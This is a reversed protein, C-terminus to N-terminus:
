NGSGSRGLIGELRRRWGPTPPQEAPGTSPDAIPRAPRRFAGETRIAREREREVEKIAMWIKSM